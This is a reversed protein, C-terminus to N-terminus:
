WDIGGTMEIYEDSHKDWDLCRRPARERMLEDTKEHESEPQFRQRYIPCILNKDIPKLRLRIDETFPCEEKGRCPIDVMNAVLRDPFIERLDRLIQLIVPRWYDAQAQYCTRRSIIHRLERWSVTWNLRTNTHLGIVGRAHEEPVGLELLANYFEQQTRFAEDYIVRAKAMNSESEPERMIPPVYYGERDAFTKLDLMRFSQEWFSIQVQYRDLQDVFARPANWTAFGLQIMNQIPADIKLAEVFQAELIHYPVKELIEEISMHPENDRSDWWTQWIRAMAIKVTGPNGPHGGM